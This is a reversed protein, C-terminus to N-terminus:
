VIRPESKDHHTALPAYCALGIPIPLWFSFLRWTLVGLIAIGRTTQFAVLTPVLIGEVIGLGGPTLPLAAAVNALGYAVILGVPGLSHGFARVSCWLALADLLWNSSAWLLTQRLFARDTGLLRLTSALSEILRRGSDPDVHPLRALLRTVLDTMRRERRLILVTAITVLLMLLVGVAAVQGYLADGGHLALAAILGIGLILNLVVASGVTQLTKGTVVRSSPVGARVLLRYGLGVGVLAGAPVVHSVALTSMDIQLMRPYSLPAWRLMRQSLRSYALLSAVEALLGTILWWINIGSLLHITKRAGAIQPMLVYEVVLLIALIGIAPKVVQRLPVWNLGRRAQSM